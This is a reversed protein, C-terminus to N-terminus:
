ARLPRPASSSTTSCTAGVRPPALALTSPSALPRGRTPAHERRQRSHPLRQLRGPQAPLPGRRLQAEPRVAHHLRELASYWRRESAGDRWRGPPLQRWRWGRRDDALEDGRCPRDKSGFFYIGNTRYYVLPMGTEGASHIAHVMYRLDYSEGVKQDYAAASNVGFVDTRNNKENAAPNHCMECLDISDVRNGGHQYMSGEHCTSCRAIDAV